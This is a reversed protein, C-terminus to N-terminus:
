FKLIHSEELWFDEEIKILKGGVGIHSSDFSKFERPIVKPNKARCKIMFSSRGLRIEEVHRLREKIGPHSLKDKYVALHTVRYYHKDEIRAIENEWVRLFIDGQDSVAGWSWRTNKLPAKCYIFMETITPNSKLIKINHKM